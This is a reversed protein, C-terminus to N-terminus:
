ILFTIFYWLLHHHEKSSFHRINVPVGYSMKSCQQCFWRVSEWETLDGSLLTFTVAFAHFKVMYTDTVQGLVVIDGVRRRGAQCRIDNGWVRTEWFNLLLLGERVLCLPYLSDRRWHVSTSSGADITATGDPKLDGCFWAGTPCPTATMEVIRYSESRIRCWVTRWLELASTCAEQGVGLQYLDVMSQKQELEAHRNVNLFAHLLDPCYYFWLTVILDAIRISSRTKNTHFKTVDVIHACGFPADYPLEPSSRVHISSPEAVFALKEAFHDRNQCAMDMRPEKQSLVRLVASSEAFRVAPEPQEEFSKTDTSFEGVVQAQSSAPLSGFPSLTTSLFLFEGDEETSYGNSIPDLTIEKGVLGITREKEATPIVMKYLATAERKAPVTDDRSPPVVEVARIDTAISSNSAVGDGMNSPGTAFSTGTASDIVYDFGLSPSSNRDSSINVSKKPSSKNWANLFEGLPKLLPDLAESIVM